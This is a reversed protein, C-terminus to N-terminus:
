NVCHRHPQQSSTPSAALPHKTHLPQAPQSTSPNRVFLLLFTALIAQRTTGDILRTALHRIGARNCALSLDPAVEIDLLAARKGDATKLDGLHLVQSFLDRFNKETIPAPKRFLEASKGFIDRILDTWLERTYPSQLKNQLNM